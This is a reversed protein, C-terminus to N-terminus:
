ADAARQQKMDILKQHNRILGTATQPESLSKVFTEEWMRMTAGTLRKTVDDVDGDGLIMQGHKIEQSPVDLLQTYLEPLSDPEVSDVFVEPTFRMFQTCLELTAQNADLVLREYAGPADTWGGFGNRAVVPLEFHQGPDEPHRITILKPREPTGDSVSVLGALACNLMQIWFRTRDDESMMLWQQDFGMRQRWALKDGESPNQLAESWLKVLSKPEDLDLFGQETRALNIVLKEGPSPYYKDNVGLGFKLNRSLFAEISPEKQLAPYTVTVSPTGDGEPVLQMLNLSALQTVMRDHLEPDGADSQPMAAKRLQDRLGPLLPENGGGAGVMLRTITRKLSSRVADVAAGEGHFELRMADGWGGSGLVADVLVHPAESSRKGVSSALAEWVRPAFQDLNGNPGGNPLVYRVGHSGSYLARCGSQYSGHERDVFEEFRETMRKVAQRMQDISQQWASSQAAWASRWSWECTRMYWDSQANLADVVPDDSWKVKRGLKDKLAPTSPAPGGGDGVQSRENLFGIVGLQDFKDDLKSHGLIVRAMRLLNIDQLQLLSTIGQGWDFSVMKPISDRQLQEQLHSIEEKANVMRTNLASVIPQAGKEDQDVGTFEPTTLALLPELGANALFSRRPAKNSEGPAPDRISQIARSLLRDALLGAVQEVPVSLSATLVSSAPSRGVGVKSQKTLDGAKNVFQSAFSMEGQASQNDKDLETGVMSEVFTTISRTLDNKSLVENRRFLFATRITGVDPVISIPKPGSGDNILLPTQEIDQNQRDILQLLDLLARSGNLQAARGGGEGNDFTSPLVVLPYIQIDLNPFHTQAVHAIIHLFDYFVGCGTGGAVSFGVFVDVGQNPSSGTVEAIQDSAQQLDTIAKRLPGAIAVDLSGNQAVVEHLAARGVTPFQGAGKSLPAVAPEGAKPPLWNEVSRVSRAHLRSAIDPYGQGEPVLNRLTAASRQHVLPDVGSDRELAQLESADFDAYVFRVFGPLEFPQLSSFPGGQNVLDTGDPGTLGLRLSSEIDAGIKVGTGGLGVYMMRQYVKM